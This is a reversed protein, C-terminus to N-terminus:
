ATEQGSEQSVSELWAGFDYANVKEYVYRDDGSAIVLVEDKLVYDATGGDEFVLQQKEEQISFSRSSEGDFLLSDDDSWFVYSFSQSADGADDTKKPIYYGYPVGDKQFVLSYSETGTDEAVVYEAKIMGNEISGTMTDGDSDTLSFGSGDSAAAWTIDYSVDSWFLIGKGAESLELYDGECEYAYEDALCSYGRYLGSFDPLEDPESVEETEYDADSLSERSVADSLSEEEIEGGSTNEPLTEESTKGVSSCSLMFGATLIGIALVPLKKRM